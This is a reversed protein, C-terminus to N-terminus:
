CTLQEKSERFFFLAHLVVGGVHLEGHRRLVLSKPQGHAAVYPAICAVTQRLTSM